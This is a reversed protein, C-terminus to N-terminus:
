GLSALDLSAFNSETVIMGSAMYFLPRPIGQFVRTLVALIKKAVCGYLNCDFFCGGAKVGFICNWTPPTFHYLKVLVNENASITALRCTYTALICGRDECDLKKRAYGRM